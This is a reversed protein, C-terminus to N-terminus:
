PPLFSPLYPWLMPRSGPHMLQLGPLAAPPLFRESAQATYGSFRGAHPVPQQSGALVAARHSPSSNPRASRRKGNPTADAQTHAAPRYLRCKDPRSRVPVAIHGAAARAHQCGPRPVPRHQPCARRRHMINSPLLSLPADHDANSSQGRNDASRLPHKGRAPNHRRRRWSSDSYRLYGPM